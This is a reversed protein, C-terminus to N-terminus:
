SEDPPRVVRRNYLRALLAGGGSLLALLSADEYTAPWAFLFHSLALLGLGTFYGFGAAALLDFIRGNM